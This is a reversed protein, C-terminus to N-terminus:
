NSLSFGNVNRDKHGGQTQLVLVCLTALVLEFSNKLSFEFEEVTVGKLVTIM